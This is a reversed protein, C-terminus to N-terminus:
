VRRLIIFPFPTLAFFLLFPSRRTLSSLFLSSCFFLCVFAGFLYQGIAHILVNNIIM